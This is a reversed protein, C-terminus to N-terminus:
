FGICLSLSMGKPILFLTLRVHGGCYSDEAAPTSGWSRFRCWTLDVEAAIRTQNPGEMVVLARRDHLPRCHQFTIGRKDFDKVEIRCSTGVEGQEDLALLYARHGLRNPANLYKDPLRPHVLKM